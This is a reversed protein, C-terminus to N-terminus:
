KFSAVAVVSKAWGGGVAKGLGQCQVRALRGKGQTRAGWGGDGSLNLPGLRGHVVENTTWWTQAGARWEHRFASKPKGRRSAAKKPERHKRDQCGELGQGCWLGCPPPLPAECTSVQLLFNQTPVGTSFVLQGMFNNGPWPVSESCKM